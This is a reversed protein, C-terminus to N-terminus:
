HRSALWVLFYLEVVATAVGIVAAAVIVGMVKVPGLVFRSGLSRREHEGRM